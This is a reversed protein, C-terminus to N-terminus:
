SYVATRIIKIMEVASYCCVSNAENKDEEWTQICTAEVGQGSQQVAHYDM